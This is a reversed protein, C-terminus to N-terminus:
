ESIIEKLEKIINITTFKIYKELLGLMQIKESINEMSKKGM